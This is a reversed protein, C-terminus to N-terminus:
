AEEADRLSEGRQCAIRQLEREADAQVAEQSDYLPRGHYWTANSPHPVAPIALSRCQPSATPVLSLSTPYDRGANIAVPDTVKVIIEDAARAVAKGFLALGSSRWRVSSASAGM